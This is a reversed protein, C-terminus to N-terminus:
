RGRRCGGDAAASAGRASARRTGVACAALRNLLADREGAAHRTMADVLWADFEAAAHEGAGGYGRMNHYSYGSGVILVGEDRLPALARGAALHEAPSLGNKLSLQVVPVDAQPYILKFPIFV